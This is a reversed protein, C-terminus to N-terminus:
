RSTSSWIPMGVAIVLRRDGEYHDGLEHRAAPPLPDEVVLRRPPQALGQQTALVRDDDVHGVPALLVLFLGSFGAVAGAEYGAPWAAAYTTQACPGSADPVAAWRDFRGVERFGARAYMSVVGTYADGNSIPGFATSRILRSCGRATPAPMTSPPRWCRQRSARKACAPRSSSACSRGSARKVWKAVSLGQRRLGGAPPQQASRGSRRRLRRDPMRKRTEIRVYDRRPSVSVWGVPRDGDYAILGPEEGAAVRTAMAARNGAKGSASFTKPQVRFWMCSCAAADGKNDFLEALDAWRDPTAPHVDLRNVPRNEVEM